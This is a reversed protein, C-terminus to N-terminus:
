LCKKLKIKIMHFIDRLGIQIAISLIHISNKNRQPKSTDFTISSITENDLKGYDSFSLKNKTLLMLTWCPSM